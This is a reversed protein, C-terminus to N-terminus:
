DWENRLKQQIKLGDEDFKLSGVIKKADFNKKSKYQAFLKKIESLDSNKNFTVVM